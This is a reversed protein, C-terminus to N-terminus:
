FKLTIYVSNLILMPAAHRKVAMEAWGLETAEFLGPVRLHGALIEAMAYAARARAARLAAAGASM